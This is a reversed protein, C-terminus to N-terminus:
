NLSFAVRNNSEAMRSVIAACEARTIFTGPSFTGKANGGALIGARYLKYVSTAYSASMKVDPIANDAVSNMPSLGEAPLANAFIEAFQARTAKQNVDSNYYAKTIIGNKYAYDLYVQYWQGSAVFNESGTTYISHIRAAMTIAEAVTVDGYPVFSTASKGKMLGFAFADAVSSTFWQEPPVDTFQGQTYTTQKSFHVESEVETNDPKNNTWNAYVTKTENHGWYKIDNSYQSGKGDKESYWGAFTYGSRTPTPFKWYEGFNIGFSTPSVSGGCPDLNITSEYTPTSNKFDPRIFCALTGYTYNHYVQKCKLDGDAGRWNQDVAYFGSSDGSLVIAVHGASSAAYSWVAIDGAKPVGGSSYKIRSWGSPLANYAYASGDGGVVTKGLYSYYYYILDVCQAGYAGDYDLAKGIQSKAWSVAESQTRNTAAEAATPLLLLLMCLTLVLSLVRKKM